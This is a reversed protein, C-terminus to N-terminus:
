QKVIRQTRISNDNDLITILYVGKNLDSTSITMTSNTVGVNMITQGLVNSIVISSANDLNDITLTNNFPNPYVNFTNNNAINDTVGTQIDGKVANLISGDEAIILGIIDLKEPNWGDSVTITYTYSEEDGASVTESLSNETGDWGGLIARAVHQYTMDAAPVPNPLSEYGGMPGRAGGAYYNAQNYSDENKHIEDESIVANIRANKVTALFKANVAFTLEKTAEEYKINKLSIDVPSLQNIMKTYASEFANPDYENGDRNVLGSPYGGIHKRMTTDYEAVTMPDDNHVAVGIWTDPYKMKMSDMYVHGRVCFGCWTGTAEEGFVHKVPAYGLASILVSITDNSLNADDSGNPNSLWVKINYDGAETLTLKQSFNFSILGLGAGLGTSTLSQAVPTGGNVSYAIDVSTLADIGNNLFVGNINIENNIPQYKYIDMKFIEVDFDPLETGFQPRIYFTLGFGMAGMDHWIPSPDNQGKWYGWSSGKVFPTTTVGLKMKNAGEVVGIFYYGESLTVGNGAFYTTYVKSEGTYVSTISSAILDAPTGTEDLSYVATQLSGGATPAVHYTQISNLVDEKGIYFINGLMVGEQGIGIGQAVNGNDRVLDTGGIYIRATDTANDTDFDNSANATFVFEENGVKPTYGIFAFSESESTNLPVSIALNKNFSGDSNKVTFNTAEALTDGRNTVTGRVTSTVQEFPVAYYETFFSIAKSTLDPVDPIELVTVTGTIDDHPAGGHNDGSVTFSISQNGTLNAAVQVTVYFEYTGSTKMGGFNNQSGWSVKQGDIHLTMPNPSGGVTACMPDSAGKVTLGTPFNMEVYDVYERDPSEAYISFLLNMTKGPIYKKLPTITAATLAKVSSVANTQRQNLQKMISQPQGYSVTFLFILCMLITTKKM